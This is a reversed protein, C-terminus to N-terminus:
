AEAVRPPAGALVPLFQWFQGAFLGRGRDGEIASGM